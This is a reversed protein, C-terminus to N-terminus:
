YLYLFSNYFKMFGSFTISIVINGICLYSMIFTFALIYIYHLLSHVMGTFISKCSRVLFPGKKKCGQLIKCSGSIKLSKAPVKCSNQALNRCFRAFDLLIKCLHLFFPGKRTRDQLPM